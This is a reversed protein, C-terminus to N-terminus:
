LFQTYSIFYTNKFFLNLLINNNSLLTYFLGKQQRNENKTTICAPVLVAKLNVVLAQRSKSTGM